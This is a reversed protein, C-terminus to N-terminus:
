GPHTLTRALGIVVPVVGVALFAPLFCLALPATAVVAAKRAAAGAARTRAARSEAALRAVASVPPVGTTAARTMWDALRDAGPAIALRAWCRAPEGGLRLEAAAQRLAGGLPGDLTRGVAEAAASPAAGADLCAALLDAALPLQRAISATEPDARATRRRQWRRVGFGAAVAAGLGAPGGVLLGVAIAVAVTVALGRLDSWRPGAHWPSRRPRRAPVPRGAGFLAERRLRAARRRRAGLVVVAPWAM